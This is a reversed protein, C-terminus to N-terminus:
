ENKLSECYKIVYTTEDMEFTIGEGTTQVPTNELLKWEPNGSINTKKYYEIQYPSGYYDKEYVKICDGEISMSNIMEQYKGIKENMTINISDGDFIGGNEADAGLFLGALFIIVAAAIYCEIKM